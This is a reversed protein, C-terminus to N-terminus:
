GRLAETGELIVLIDDDGPGVSELNGDASGESSCDPWVTRSVEDVVRKKRDVGAASVKLLGLSFLDM